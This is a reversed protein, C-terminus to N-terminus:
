RRNFTEVQPLDRLSRLGFLDLFRPTTRYQVPEGPQSREVVILERRVLQRLM